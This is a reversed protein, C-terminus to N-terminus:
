GAAVKLRQRVTAEVNEQLYNNVAWSITEGVEESAVNRAVARKQLGEMLAPVLKAALMPIIAGSIADVARELQLSASAEEPAQPREQPLVEELLVTGASGADAELRLREYSASDMGHLVKLDEYTVLAAVTKGRRTLAIRDQSFAVKDVLASIDRRAETVPHTEYAFSEGSFEKIDAM